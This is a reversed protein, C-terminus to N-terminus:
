GHEKATSTLLRERARFDHANDLLTDAITSAKLNDWINQRQQAMGELPPQDNDKSWLDEAEGRNPLPTEQLCSPVIHHVLVDSAATSALYACPALHMASRIGLGGWKVPLTAQIWAPEGESFHVNTIGSM